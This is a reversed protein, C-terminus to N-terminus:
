SALSVAAVGYPSVLMTSSGALRTNINVKSVDHKTHQLSVYAPSVLSIVGRVPYDTESKEFSYLAKVKLFRYLGSFFGSEQLRLCRRGESIYYLIYIIYFIYIIYYMCMSTVTM